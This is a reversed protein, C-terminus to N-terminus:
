RSEVSRGDCVRRITDLLRRSAATVDGQAYLSGGILLITDMGYREIWYPARAVDVGGGPVPFAPRLSGLAKRLNANIADCTAESIDFRGGANAYIVGDSGVIRYLEGYLVEPLIGHDPQFFLGSMSPHAFVAMGATGAIWHVTDLGVIIPSVMVGRCGAARAVALEDQIAPSGRALQPFYVSHGGTEVNAKMVAEQCRAVRQRFPATRQDALNHDDKIIDIGGLAFRYCLEALEAASLGVPKLATCLLPRRQSVGCLERVGPIGFRPGGLSRLLPEPWEVGTVLIAPKMSINGFLLNLLQPVETGVAAPDYTIVARWRGGRGTRGERALPELAEVRGVVRAAIEPSVCEPPLEVTQEFAIDRAKAEPDEGPACTLQYTVRLRDGSV